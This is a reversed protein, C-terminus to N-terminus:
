DIMVFAEQSSSRSAAGALLKKEEKELSHILMRARDDGYVLIVRSFFFVCLMDGM